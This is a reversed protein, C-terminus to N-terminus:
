SCHASRARHLVDGLKAGLGSEAGDPVLYGCGSILLTRRAAHGPKM